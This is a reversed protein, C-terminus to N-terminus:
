GAHHWVADDVDPEEVTRGHLVQLAMRVEELRGEVALERIRVSPSHLLVGAFHRLASEVEESAGRKRARAIETDLVGLVEQRLATIAPGALRDATFENAADGVIARADDHARFQELPAHLRITELDLLDVGDVQGVEPDVNRPLGLDIVLVRRGPVFANAHVVADTTCTIVIDALAAAEAFDERPALAYRAAFASARGSPSFVGINIAGRARVADVTVAAYKGTGVVLVNAQSWDAVRTSAMELALRVLSRHKGRLGIRNRVGRSTHTAKQFLSELEGSTTGEERAADLARRVQGSIEDEGVVISELGSTVAFLHAVADSGHHVELSARLHDVPIDSATAMADVVSEVAVVDAGTLPEEIDLYAEFRNCTALVVAGAVFLEDDVLARTAQPAGISLRELIDLSANRHNATLCLLVLM